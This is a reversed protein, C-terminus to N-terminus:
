RNHQDNLGIYTYRDHRDYSVLGGAACCLEILSGICCSATYRTTAKAEAAIFLRPPSPRDVTSQQVQRILQLQKHQNGVFFATTDNGTTDTKPSLILEIEWLNYRNYKDPLQIHPKWITTETM